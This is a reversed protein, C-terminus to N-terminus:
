PRCGATFVACTGKLYTVVGLSQPSGCVQTRRPAHLVTSLIEAAREAGQKCSAKTPSYLYIM